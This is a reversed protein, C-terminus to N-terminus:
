CQSICVTFRLYCVAFLFFGRVAFRSCYVHCCGHCYIHCCVHCCVHSCVRWCVRCCFNCCFDVKLMSFHLCCVMFLLYPLSWSLFLRCCLYKLLCKQITCFIVLCHYCTANEDNGEKLAFKIIFHLFNM